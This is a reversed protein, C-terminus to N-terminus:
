ESENQELGTHIDKKHQVCFYINQLIYTVMCNRQDGNVEM